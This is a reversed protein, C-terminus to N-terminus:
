RINLTSHRDELRAIRAEWDADHRGIALRARLAWALAQERDGLHEYCWSILRAPQDTYKDPERWLQTPPQAADAAQLAYGIAHLHRRQDYALYTLEMWFEAWHRDQSVAQLLTSEAAAADGAARECRAKYLYAFLWEDRYGPGMEIRRAYWPVAQAFRSGDKHTNGLYFATRPNPNEEFEESLIRLNRANASEGSGPSADHVIVSDSLVLIAHGGITPYEHCRGEFRIGRGAKWLRHHVWRQGGSEIQVGFVDFQSWYLARRLNHPTLLADDADVWLVYDAGQRECEEVFVNRARGFDWLKWDGGADQRSAGLFTQTFVPKDITSVAVQLTADTSGTDVVVVADVLAEISRLCRPLDREENKVILGGVVRPSHTLPRLILDRQGAGDMTGTHAVSFLDGGQVLLELMAAFSFFYPHVAYQGPVLEREFGSVGHDPLRLFVQGDDAVLRRLTRLANLPDGFHSFVHVLTILRFKGSATMQALQADGLNEFDAQLLPVGLTQAYDPAADINDLGHADCGLQRLCHALWPYNCGVDLTKGATGGLCSAFLYDALQRNIQRDAEPMLHGRSRGAVDLQEAAEYAKAPLPAQFWCDCHSCMWYPADRYRSQVATRCVPCDMM